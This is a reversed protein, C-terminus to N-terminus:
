YYYVNNQIHASLKTQDTAAALGQIWITYISGNRLSQNPLSALVTSTGAQRIEFNLVSSYPVAIFGSYGKYAKNSVLVNGGKIALDTAPADPSLNVFRVTITGAAPQKITDTLLLLDPKSSLNSLFVSYFTDKKLTATDTIIKQTTGGVYFTINRKGTFARIYDQSNGNKISVNATRNQDLFLDVNQGDVSANIASILAVPQQPVPNYNNNDKICSTLGLSVISGMLVLRAWGKFSHQFKKM